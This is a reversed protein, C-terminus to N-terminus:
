VNLTGIQFGVFIGSDWGKTRFERERQYKVSSITAM